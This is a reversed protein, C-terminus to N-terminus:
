FKLFIYVTCPVWYLLAQGEGVKILFCKKKLKYIFIQNCYPAGVGNKQWSAIFMTHRNDSIGISHVHSPCLAVYEVCIITWIKIKIM